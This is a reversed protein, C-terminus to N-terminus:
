IFGFTGLWQKLMLLAWLRGAHDEHSRAHTSLLKQVGEKSFGVGLFAPDLLERVLYPQLEDRFWRDLPVSFGRKPRYICERPLFDEAIKKLLYKKEKGKLKLRAPMSATLELLEHDLFPSRVELGHAMSAIDIKVLLDNPLMTKIDAYLFRELGAAPATRLAELLFGEGRSETIRARFADTYILQKEAAGFYDVINLFFEDPSEHSAEIFTAGKQFLQKKTLAYFLRNVRALVPGIQKLPLARLQAFLQLAYYRNYGLFNEDGGDGNLAVTVHKRTLESLFWTPLASADAYPEEYQFSLANITPELATPKLHFEHHHTSYRKAVLAAYPLENYEHADFGVSFTEVSKTSAEAMLAVVMSSDVGGSLHAGVPVDAIMRLEVSKRLTELTRQKWETEPIDLKDTFNLDWYQQKTITGDPRVVMYHAPELKRINRFGTKPHPVYKYTLYEDIAGWDVEKKVAPDTLIAKLESAFMFVNQDRYYKLPKKGVRDRAIFLLKKEKDWIAFAFMGRLHQVCDFGYKKYLELIVETDTHSRFSVGSAELAARLEQFNYIEGNYTICVRGSSDQMPMHGAPSLDIIALRRNGLGVPGDIFVGQDDPGRHAIADTMRRIDGEAVSADSTFYLKGAIGCM